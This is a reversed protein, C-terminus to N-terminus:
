GEQAAQVLDLFALARDLDGYLLPHVENLVDCLHLLRKPDLQVAYANRLFHSFRRLESLADLSGPSLLAPRLPELPQAANQILSIHWDPGTPLDGEIARCM